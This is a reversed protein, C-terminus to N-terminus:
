RIERPIAYVNKGQEWAISATISTGSRFASEIVLVCESLGSVIRNRKIFNSSEPKVNNDFESIVLGGNEIINDFLDMNESPYIHSFGSGLVAITKGNVNLAEKHAVSDVGIAMGSIVVIDRLAIEKAFEKAIKRGYETIKRTGIIAIGKESLLNINGKYYLKLPPNKIKRLNEPYRIDNITIYIKKCGKM